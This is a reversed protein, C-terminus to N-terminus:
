TSPALSAACTGCEPCRNPTARLDYGCVRCLGSCHRRRTRLATRLRLAPLIAALVVVFWNPLCVFYSSSGVAAAPTRQGIGFGRRQLWSRPDRFVQGPPGSKYYPGFEAGQPPRRNSANLSLQLLGYGGTLQIGRAKREQPTSCDIRWGYANTRSSHTCWDALVALCLLASVIWLVVSLAPVL